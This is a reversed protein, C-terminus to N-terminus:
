WSYALLPRVYLYLYCTELRLSCAGLALVFISAVGISAGGMITRTTSMDGTTTHLRKDSKVTM